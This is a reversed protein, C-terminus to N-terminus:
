LKLEEIGANTGDPFQVTGGESNSPRLAVKHRQALKEIFSHALRIIVQYGGPALPGLDSYPDTHLRPITDFFCHAKGDDIYGLTIDGKYPSQLVTGLAMNLSPVDGFRRFGKWQDIIDKLTIWVRGRMLMCDTIACALLELCKKEEERQLSESLSLSISTETDFNSLIGGANRIVAFLEDYIGLSDNPGPPRGIEARTRAFPYDLIM